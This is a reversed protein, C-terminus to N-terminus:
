YSYSCVFPWTLFITLLNAHTEKDFNGIYSTVKWRPHTAILAQGQCLTTSGLLFVGHSLIRSSFTTPLSSGPNSNPLTPFGFISWSTSTNLSCSLIETSVYLIYCGEMNLLTSCAQIQLVCDRNYSDLWSYCQSWHVKLPSVCVQNYFKKTSWIVASQTDKSHHEFQSSVCSRKMCGKCFETESFFFLVNSSSKGAGLNVELFSFSSWFCM